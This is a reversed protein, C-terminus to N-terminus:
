ELDVLPDTGKVYRVEEVLLSGAGTFAEAGALTGGFPDDQLIGAAADAQAQVTITHVGSGVDMAVFNFSGANLSKQLLQLTEPDACTVVGTELNATCNLGSFRATLTSVRDQYVVGAATGRDANISNDPLAYREQATGQDLVIRVSVTGRATSSSLGGNKSSVTNDTVVGTQLAAIMNLDKQESTKIQTELVDVWGSSNSDSTQDKDANATQLIAILEDVAVAAKASPLSGGSQANASQGSGSMIALLLAAALLALMALATNLRKSDSSPM